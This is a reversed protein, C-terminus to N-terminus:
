VKEVIVITTPYCRVCKRAKSGFTLGGYTSDRMTAAVKTLLEVRAKVAVADTSEALLEVRAEVTATESFQTLSVISTIVGVADAVFTLFVIGSL